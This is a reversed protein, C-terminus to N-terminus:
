LLIHTVIAQSYLNFKGLFGVVTNCWKRANECYCFLTRFWPMKKGFVNTSVDYLNYPNCCFLCQIKDSSMRLKPVWSVLPRKLPLKIPLVHINLLVISIGNRVPSIDERNVPMQGITCSNDELSYAESGILFGNTVGRCTIDRHWWHVCRAKGAIQKSKQKM